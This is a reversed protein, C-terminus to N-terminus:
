EDDSAFPRSIRITFYTNGEDDTGFSLGSEGGYIIKLRKQVNKIGISVSRKEKKDDNSLLATIRQRDEDSLEGPNTVRIALDTEEDPEDVEKLVGDEEKVAKASLTILFKGEYCEGHEVANEIIPQIILRPVRCSMFSPDVNEEYAFREGFRCSLIYTYADVYELEERLTILEKKERNLTASMMTSLAEIMQSAKTNGSMRLEWNIIELTNNLFHPNIQAQLANINADRLAIEEVYIKEFQKKLTLSMSNFNENIARIEGKSKKDEITVGYNGGAIADSTEMLKSIPRNINRDFFYFILVMLFLIFATSMGFLGLLIREENRYLGKQLFAQYCFGTGAIDDCAFIYENRREISLDTTGDSDGNDNKYGPCQLGSGDVGVSFFVDEDTYVAYGNVDRVSSLTGFISNIDLEQVLVAYTEGGSLDLKRIMYIHGEKSFFVVDKDSGFTVDHIEDKANNIYFSYNKGGDARDFYDVHYVAPWDLYYLVSMSFNRNYAYQSVLFEKSYLYLDAKNRSIRFQNYADQLTHLREATESAYLCDDLRLSCNEVAKEMSANIMEDTQTRFSRVLIVIMIGGLFLMPLAWFVILQKILRWKLTRKKHM